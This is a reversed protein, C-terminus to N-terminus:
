FREQIDALDWAIEGEEVWAITGDAEVGLHTPLSSLRLEDMYKSHFDYLTPLTLKKSIIWASVEPVVKEALGQDLNILHVNIGASKLKELNQEILPLEHVCPACWTAWFSFVNKGPMLLSATKVPNKVDRYLLGEPIKKGRWEAGVDRKEMFLYPGFLALGLGLSLVIALALKWFKL